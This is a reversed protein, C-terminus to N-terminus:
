RFLINSPDAFLLAVIANERLRPSLSPNVSLGYAAVTYTIHFLRILYRACIDQSNPDTRDGHLLSHAAGVGQQLVATVTINTDGTDVPDHFRLDVVLEPLYQIRRKQCRGVAHGRDPHPV